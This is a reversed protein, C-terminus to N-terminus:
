KEVEVVKSYISKSNVENKKKRSKERVKKGNKEVIQYDDPFKEKLEMAANDPLEFIHGTPLYTIKYMTKRELDVQCECILLITM